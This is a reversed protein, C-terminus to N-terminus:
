KGLHVREVAQVTKSKNSLSKLDTLVPDSNLLRKGIAVASKPNIRLSLIFHPSEPPEVSCRAFSAEALDTLERELLDV